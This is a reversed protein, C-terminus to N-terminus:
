HSIKRRITYSNFKNVANSEITYFALPVSIVLLGYLSTIFWIILSVIFSAIAIWWLFSYHIEAKIDNVHKTSKQLCGTCQFDIHDGYQMQLAGRDSAKQYVPIENKCHNCRTYLKM